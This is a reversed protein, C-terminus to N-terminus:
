YLIIIFIIIVIIIIIIIIFLFHFPFIEDNVEIITVVLILNIGIYKEMQSDIGIDVSSAEIYICVYIHNVLVLKIISLVSSSICSNSLMAEVKQVCTTGSNVVDIVVHKIGVLAQDCTCYISNIVHSLVVHEELKKNEHELPTFVHDHSM